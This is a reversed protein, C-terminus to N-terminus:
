LINEASGGMRWSTCMQASISSASVLGGTFIETSRWCDAPEGYRWVGQVNAMLWGLIYLGLLRLLTFLSTLLSKQSWYAVSQAGDGTPVHFLPVEAETSMIKWWVVSNELSSLFFSLCQRSTQGM